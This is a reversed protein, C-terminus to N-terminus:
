LIFMVYHQIRITGSHQVSLTLTNRILTGRLDPHDQILHLTWWSGTGNTICRTQLSLVLTATQRARVLLGVPTLSTELLIRKNPKFKAANIPTYRLLSRIGLFRPKTIQSRRITSANPKNVLLQHPLRLLLSLRSRVRMSTLRTQNQVLRQGGAWSLASDLSQVKVNIPLKAPIGIIHRCDRLGM